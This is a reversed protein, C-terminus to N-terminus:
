EVVVQPVTAMDHVTVFLRSIRWSEMWVLVAWLSASVDNNMDVVDVVVDTDM